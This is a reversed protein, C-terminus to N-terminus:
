APTAPRRCSASPTACRPRLASTGPISLSFEGSPAVFLTANGGEVDVVYVDLTTRTQAGAGDHGAQILLVALAAASKIWMTGRM